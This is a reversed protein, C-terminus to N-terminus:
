IQQRTRAHREVRAGRRALRRVKGRPSRHRAHHEIEVVKHRPFLFIVGSCRARSASVRRWKKLRQATPTPCTARADSSFPPRPSAAVTAAFGMASFGGMNGAFTFLTM